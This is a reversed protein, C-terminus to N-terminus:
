AVPQTKHRPHQVIMRALLPIFAQRDIPKAAMADWGERTWQDPTKELYDATLGVVPGSYGLVKMRKMASAGDLEPMHLDLIVLDFAEAEADTAALSQRIAEVAEAGNSVAKVRAGARSLYESVLMRINPTDDALLVHAALAPPPSAAAQRSPLAPNQAAPLDLSFTSGAGPASKVSLEGGMQHSLQRSIALGLGFGGFRRTNGQEVQYFPEFISQLHEQAMGIGTDAVEFRLMPPEGERQPAMRLTLTVSGRATFKIANSLLNLLIQRLRVGDTQITPPTEPDIRLILAIEKEAARPHLLEIAQQAVERPSQEGLIVRVKGMEARSLDLLDDILALLHQANQRVVDVYRDHDAPELQREALLDAYGLISTLPTRIEHSTNALFNSKADNAAEAASTAARLEEAIRQRETVELRLQLNARSLEATREDVRHELQSRYLSLTRESQLRETVDTVLAIRAPKGNFEVQHTVADVFIIRGDRRRVQYPGVRVVTGGAYVPTAALVRPREEAVVLDLTRLALLEDRPYGYLLLAVDNAALIRRDAPDFIIMASPNRQFLRQYQEASQEARAQMEEEHAQMSRVYHRVVIFLLTAMLFIFFTGKLTQYNSLQMVNPPLMMLLVRDSAVIWVLGLMLFYGATRFAVRGARRRKDHARSPSPVPGTEM